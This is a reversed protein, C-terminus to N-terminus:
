RAECAINSAHKSSMGLKFKMVLKVVNKTGPTTRTRDKGIWFFPQLIGEVFRFGRAGLRVLAM